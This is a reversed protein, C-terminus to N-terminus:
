AASQPRGPPCLSAQHAPREGAAAPPERDRGRAGPDAGAYEHRADRRRLGECLVLLEGVGSGHRASIFHMPAFDAFTLRQEVQARIQERQETPINDWKNVALVLARGQEIATGLLSADQEAVNEHADMVAVVVHATEIAQLAKIVSFKEIAEEVRARRRLGATDILTYREGDREFPVM